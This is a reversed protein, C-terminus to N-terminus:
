SFAAQREREIEALAPVRAYAEAIRQQQAQREQRRIRDYEREIRMM